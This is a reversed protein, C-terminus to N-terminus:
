AAAILLRSELNLQADDEKNLANAGLDLVVVREFNAM